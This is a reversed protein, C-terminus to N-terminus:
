RNVTTPVVVNPWFQDEVERTRRTAECVVEECVM